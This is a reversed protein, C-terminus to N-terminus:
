TEQNFHTMLLVKRIIGAKVDYGFLGSGSEEDHLISRSGDLSDDVVKVEWHHTSIGAIQSEASIEKSGTVNELEYNKMEDLTNVFDDRERNAHCSFCRGIDEEYDV